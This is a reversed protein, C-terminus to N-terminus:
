LIVLKVVMLKFAKQLLVNGKVEPLFGVLKVHVLLIEQMLIFILIMAILMQFPM